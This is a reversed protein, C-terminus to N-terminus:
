KTNTRLQEDALWDEKLKIFKSATKSFISDVIKQLGREHFANQLGLAIQRPDDDPDFSSPMNSLNKPAPYKGWKIEHSMRALVMPEDDILSINCDSALRTLDHTTIFKHLHSDHIIMEPRVMILIGKLLCELGYGALLLYDSVLQSDKFDALEAGDLRRAGNMFPTDVKDLMRRLERQRAAYAIDYLHNAALKHREAHLGWLLPWRCAALFAEKRRQEKLKHTMASLMEDM